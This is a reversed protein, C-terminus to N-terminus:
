SQLYQKFNFNSLYFRSGQEKTLSIKTKESANVIWNNFRVEIGFVLM